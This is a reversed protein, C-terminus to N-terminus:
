FSRFDLALDVGILIKLTIHASAALSCSGAAFLERIPRIPFAVLNAPLVVAYVFAIRCVVIYSYVATVSM